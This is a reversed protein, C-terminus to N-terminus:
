NSSADTAGRNLVQAVGADLTEVASEFSSNNQVISRIANGLYSNLNDIMKEDYTDSSFITSVANPGQAVFPNILANAKLSEALDTRPYLEGFLRTQSQKAYLKEMSERSALYSLFKYSEEPYKTKSSVGEVWYSAITNGRGPLQPVSIVAFELNPNIAKLEFIDWSYGFYMALTEKAFALKSNELTDDWVKDDGTAFSTYFELADYSSEKAAGNLAFLDAGNQIFLLSIIDPSHAINDYTGLAVGSTTIKNSGDKVTLKTSMDIIDNWTKPYEAIGNAQFIKSNVFLSLTDFHIPVGYYAGDIKLDSTVVPFFKTDVETKKVVEEPLALLLGDMEYIWSNHYRFIDPGTGNGIRTELRDVYKGLTKIDQNEFKVKINPNLRTFENSIEEFAAKDEWIGWYTLTVDKPEQSRFRPLVVFIVVLIVAIVAIVGVIISIIKKKSIGEAAGDGVDVPYDQNEQNVNEEM